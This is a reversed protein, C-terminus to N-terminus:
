PGGLPMFPSVQYASGHRAMCAHADLRQMAACRMCQQLPCGTRGTTPGSGCAGPQPAAGTTCRPRRRMICTWPTCAMTQRSTRLSRLFGNWSQQQLCPVLDASAPLIHHHAARRAPAGAANDTHHTAGLRRSPHGSLAGLSGRSCVSTLISIAKQAEDTSLEFLRLIYSATHLTLYALAATLATLLALRLATSGSPAGRRADLWTLAPAAVM